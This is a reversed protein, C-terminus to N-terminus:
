FLLCYFLVLSSWVTLFFSCRLRLPYIPLCLFSPCQLSVDSSHFALIWFPSISVKTSFPFSSSFVTIRYIVIPIPSLGSLLVFLFCIFFLFLCVFAFRFCPCPGSLTPHPPLMKGGGWGGSSGGNAKFDFVQILSKNYLTVLVQLDGIHQSLCHVCSMTCPRLCNLSCWAPCVVTHMVISISIVYLIFSVPVISVRITVSNHCKLCVNM